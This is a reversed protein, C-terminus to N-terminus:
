PATQRPVYRFPHGRRVYCEVPEGHHTGCFRVEGGSLEDVREVLLLTDNWVFAGVDEPRVEGGVGERVLHGDM